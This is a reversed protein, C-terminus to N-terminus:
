GDRPQYAADDFFPFAKIDNDVIGPDDLGGRELVRREFVEIFRHLGMEPPRQIQDPLRERM